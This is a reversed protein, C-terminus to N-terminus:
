KIFNLRAITAIAVAVVAIALSSLSVLFILLRIEAILDVSQSLPDFEWLNWLIMAVNLIICVSLLIQTKLIRNQENNTNEPSM